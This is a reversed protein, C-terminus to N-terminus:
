YLLYFSIIYLLKIFINIFMSFTLNSSLPRNVYGKWKQPLSLFSTIKEKNVRHKHSPRHVDKDDNKENEYKIPTSNRKHKSNLTVNCYKIKLPEGSKDNNKFGLSQFERLFKDIGVQNLNQQNSMM